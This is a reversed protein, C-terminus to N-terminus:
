STADNKKIRTADVERCWAKPMVTRIHQNILVAYGDEGFVTIPVYVGGPAVIYDNKGLADTVQESLLFRIESDYLYASGPWHERFRELAHPKIPVYPRSSYGKHRKKGVAM